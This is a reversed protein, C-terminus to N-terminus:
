TTRIAETTTALRGGQQGQRWRDPNYPQQTRMLAFALRHARHGVAIAAVIPRKGSDLLRRKHATFDPHRLSLMVGMTIIAQRLEVSGVKSIRQSTAKRGASEYSTPTLGSYRYAADANAFRTPDGLAAGYHSATAVGIGPVSMLVGAPTQPLLQALEADGAAIAVRLVDFSAMDEALLQQAALRQTEPVCITEKAAAIVQRAKPRLMRVQHAVAHAVLDDASMGAVKAPDAASVLLMRLAKAELGTTFCDTLGPFALDALAHIQGGLVKAAALKRRRRAV